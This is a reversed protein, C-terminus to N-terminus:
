PLHHQPNTMVESSYLHGMIAATPHTLDAHKLKSSLSALGDGVLRKRLGSDFCRKLYRVSKLM